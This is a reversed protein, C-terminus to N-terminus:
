SIILKSNKSSIGYVKINFGQYNILYELHYLESYIIKVIVRKSKLTITKEHYDFSSFYFFKIGM